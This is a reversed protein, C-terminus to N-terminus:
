HKVCWHYTKSNKSKTDKIDSPVIRGNTGTMVNKMKTTKKKERDFIGSQCNTSLYGKPLRM